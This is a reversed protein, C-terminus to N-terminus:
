VLYKMVESNAIVRVAQEDGGMLKEMIEDLQGQLQATQSRADRVKLDILSSKTIVDDPMGDGEQEDKKEDEKGKGEKEGRRSKDKSSSSPRTSSVSASSSVTSSASSSSSSPKSASSSPATASSAAMVQKLSWVSKGTVKNFYYQKGTRKSTQITWGEPLKSAM